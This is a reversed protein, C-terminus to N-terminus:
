GGPRRAHHRFFLALVAAPMLVILAGLALALVMPGAGLLHDLRDLLWRVLDPDAPEGHHALLSLVALM